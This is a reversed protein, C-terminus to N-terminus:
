PFWCEQTWRDTSRTIQHRFRCVRFEFHSIIHTDNQGSFTRSAPPKLSIPALPKCRLIRHLILKSLASTARVSFRRQISLEDKGRAPATDKGSIFGGNAFTGTELEKTTHLPFGPPLARATASRRKTRTRKSNKPMVASTRAVTPM